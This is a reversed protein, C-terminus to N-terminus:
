WAGLLMGARGSVGPAVTCLQSGRTAPARLDVITGTADTSGDDVLVWEAPRVTQRVVSAINEELHAAENRVPTIVVYRIEREPSQDWARAANKQSIM